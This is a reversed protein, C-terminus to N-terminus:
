YCHDRAKRRHTGNTERIVKERTRTRVSVRNGHDGGIHSGAIFNHGSVGPHPSTEKRRESDSHNASTGKVLAIVVFMRADSDYARAKCFAQEGMGIGNALVNPETHHRLVLIKFNHAQGAICPKEIEAICGCGYNIKGGRFMRRITNPSVATSDSSPIAIPIGHPMAELRSMAPMSKPTEAFSKELMRVAQGNSRTTAM